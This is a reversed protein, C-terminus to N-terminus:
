ALHAGVPEPERMGLHISQLVYGLFYVFAAIGVIAGLIPIAGAVGVIAGGLLARVFRGMQPFALTFLSAGLFGSSVLAMALLALLLAGAVPLTVVLLCLIIIALPAAIAGVIGSGITAGTRTRIMQAAAATHRRFLWEALLAVIITAVIGLLTTAIKLPSFFGQQADEAQGDSASNSEAQTFKVDAVEAGRQMVPEQPAEVYLTGKIRANTGVIVNGAGVHVDGEVTGDIVVDSAYATLESCTGSFSFSKAAVAIADAQTDEISVTEAGLTINNAISSNAIEIVQAAARIDGRVQCSGLAIIRGAGILDNEAVVGAVDLNEGFWVYDSGLKFLGDVSSGATAAGTAAAAAAAVEAETSPAAETATAEASSAAPTNGEPTAPDTDEEAQAHLPQMVLAAVLVLALAAAVLTIHRGIGNIALKKTEM